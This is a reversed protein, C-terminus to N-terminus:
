HGDSIRENKDTAGIWDLRYDVLQRLYECGLLHAGRSKLQAFM